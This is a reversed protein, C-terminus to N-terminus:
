QRLSETIERMANYRMRNLKAYFEQEQEHEIHLLDLYRQHCTIYQERLYTLKAVVGGFRIDFSQRRQGIERHLMVLERLIVVNAPTRKYNPLQPIDPLINLLLQIASEVISFVRGDGGKDPHSRLRAVRCAEKLKAGDTGPQVGVIKHLLGQSYWHAISNYSSM